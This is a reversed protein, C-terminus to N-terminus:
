TNGFIPVEEGNGGESGKDEEYKIIEFLKSASAIRYARSNLVVARGEWVEVNEPERLFDTLYRKVEELDAAPLNETEQLLISSQFLNKKYTGIEKSHETVLNNAINTIFDETSDLLNGTVGLNVLANYPSCGSAVAKCFTTIQARKLQM